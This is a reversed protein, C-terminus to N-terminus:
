ATRRVLGLQARLIEDAIVWMPKGTDARRRLLERKVDDAVDLKPMEASGMAGKKRRVQKGM